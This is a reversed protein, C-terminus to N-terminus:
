PQPAPDAMRRLAAAADARLGPSSSAEALCERAPEWRCEGLIRAAQRRAVVGMDPWAALLAGGVADRPLMLLSRQAANRVTFVPDALAAVLPPVARADGLEGLAVAAQIRRGEKESSLHPQIADLAATDHWKGLTRIAAGATDDASLLPRVRPAYSPADVFGLLFVATKRVDNTPHSLLAVLTEAAANTPVRPLLERAYIYFWPNESGAREVLYGLAPAGRRMLEDKASAKAARRAPTDGYRSAHFMLQDLTSATSPPPPEPPLAALATGVGLLCAAACALVGLLRQRLGVPRHQPTALPWHGTAPPLVLSRRSQTPRVSAVQWKAGAVRWLVQSVQM